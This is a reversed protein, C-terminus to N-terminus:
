SFFVKYYISLIEKGWFIYIFSAIALFPGYPIKKKGKLLVGIIGVISGIFSSVVLIFLIPEVGLFAGIMALLKVDGLGMTETSIGSNKIKFIINGVGRIILLIAGGLIIGKLSSLYTINSNFFSLFFGLFIGGISIEDPIIQYKLDIFTVVILSSIFIFYIFATFTFGFKLFTYIAILGTLFEVLLYRPSIFIHCARCRGLLIFYSIIPINDYGKIQTGCFPCHSRPTIISIERPLRYICVNLFSGICIGFIFSYIILLTNM